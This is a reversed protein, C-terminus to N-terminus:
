LLNMRPECLPFPDVQAFLTDLTVLTDQANENVHKKYSIEKIGMLILFVYCDTFYRLRTIGFTNKQNGIDCGPEYVALLCKLEGNRAAHSVSWKSRCDPYYRQLWRIVELHGRFTALSMAKPTPKVGLTKLRELEDLDGNFAAKDM